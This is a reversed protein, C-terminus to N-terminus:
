LVSGLRFRGSRSGVDGFLRSLGGIFGSGRDSSLRGSGLRRVVSRCLTGRKDAVGGGM